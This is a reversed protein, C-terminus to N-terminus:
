RAASARRADSRSWPASARVRSVRVRVGALRLGRALLPHFGLLLFGKAKWPHGSRALDVGLVVQRDIEVIREHLEIRGFQQQRAHELIVRDLINRHAHHAIRPHQAAPLDAGRPLQASLIRQGDGLAGNGVNRAEGVVRDDPLVRNEVGLFEGRHEDVDPAAVVARLIDDLQEVAAVRELLLLPVHRGPSM